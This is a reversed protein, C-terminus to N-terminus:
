PFVVWVFELKSKGLKELDIGNIEDIALVEIHFVSDDPAQKFFSHFDFKLLDNDMTDINSFYISFYVTGSNNIIAEPYFSM